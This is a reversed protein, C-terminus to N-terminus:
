ELEKYAGELIPLMQARDLRRGNVFFSPTGQVGIEVGMRAQSLIAEHTEVSEVCELQEQPNLGIQEQTESVIRRANEMTGARQLSEFKDFLLNHLVYGKENLSEACYTAKAALCPIGSRGSIAENCTGDLPFSYFRLQVDPRSQLFARISPKASKCHICLFDAFESIVFRAQEDSAGAVFSPPATFQVQPNIKWEAVRIRVIRDVDGAGYKLLLSNNLLFSLVPISLLFIIYTFPPAFAERIYDTTSKNSEELSSWLLFTVLFSIFYTGICFICYTGIVVSSLTGMIVSMFAVFLSLWFSYRGLQQTNDTWSIAWGFVMIALVLNTTAGWIAMPIGYLSSFRSATVSDCNLLSNINCVSDSGSAAFIFDYYHIALYAHLGIAVLLLIFASILKM